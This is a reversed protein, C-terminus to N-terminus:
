SAYVCSESACQRRLSRRVDSAPSGTMVGRM